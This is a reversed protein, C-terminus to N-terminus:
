PMGANRLIYALENIAREELPLRRLRAVAAEVDYQAQNLEVQGGEIVAYSAMPIGDRPQGVSGVNVLLKGGAERIFPRHTHGMLIIDADTLAAEAALDADSAEPTVYRFLNDSPAAHVALVRHGGSELELSIPAAGLWDLREQDLVQWMYERTQVSLHRYAEGCGCDMRFAVANDHNGRVRKAGRERLWNICAAPEPGYDVVDGLFLVADCPEDIAELADINAHIDSLVLTRM